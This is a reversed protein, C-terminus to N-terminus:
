TSGDVFRTERFYIVLSACLFSLGAFLLENAAMSVLAVAIFLVAIVALVTPITDAM